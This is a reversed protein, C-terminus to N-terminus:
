QGTGSLALECGVLNLLRSTRKVAPDFCQCNERTVESQRAAAEAGYSRINKRGISARVRCEIHGLKSTCAIDAIRSREATKWDGPLRAQLAIHSIELACVVQRIAVDASEAIVRHLKASSCAEPQAFAKTHCGGDHSHVPM